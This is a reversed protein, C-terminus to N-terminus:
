RGEANIESPAKQGDQRRKGFQLEKNRLCIRNEKVETYVKQKTLIPSKDKSFM